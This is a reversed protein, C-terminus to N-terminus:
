FNLRILFPYEQSEPNVQAAQQLAQLSRENEGKLGYFLSQNLLDNGQVFRELLATDLVNHFMKDLPKRNEHLFLLNAATNDQSLCDTHFFETYSKDDTNIGTGTGLQAISEGDLVLTAALHNPESYFDADAPLRNIRQEWKYYDLDIPETSGVLVAHYHGLWVTCEPFVAQFTAMLGLLDEQRLKHLPLYQSVMGGPNLHDRCLQFFDQTYLNGSGLIPHTPDCSILDYTKSTKQLFHRGDGSSIKLRPDAMVNKNRDKYYAAARALDPVLEVCDIAQVEEHSAIASTPEVSGISRSLVDKIEAGLLFPYHGVMKVVKIADYSSGIVASNNVFTYKAQTRSQRDRSVSLTGEVSESYHLIERDFKLVSPPLIRIEPRAVLLVLALSMLALLTARVGTSCATERGVLLAGAALFALVVVVGLVPGMTPILVFAAVVPGVVSGITNIMMVFGVDGTIGSRSTTFMSCALPFAYGSFVAPPFVVLLSALAPLVQPLRILLLLGAAVTVIIGLLVRVLTQPNIDKGAQRRDFLTSGVFIGLIALSSILAFGYSTNPLYIKFIRLWLVQLTLLSFGCVLAGILAARLFDSRQQLTASQSRKRSRSTPPSKAPDQNEGALRFRPELFAWSGLVLNIVVALLVTGQQGLWGLLVFGALLGGMASGLTEFAYLRGISEAVSEAQGVAIRSSVPFIGGMLFAPLFLLLGVLVFVLVDPIAGGTAAFRAFLDPVVGKFLLYDLGSALGMGFLLLGLLRGLEKRGMARRGWFLAGYGFGAMFSALVITAATVTTGLALGLLRNWSVEYVLFSFGALFVLGHIPLIRFRGSQSSAM